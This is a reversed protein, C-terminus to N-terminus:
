DHVLYDTMALPLCQAFGNDHILVNRLRELMACSLTYVAGVSRTQADDCFCPLCGRQSAVTIRGSSTALWDGRKM